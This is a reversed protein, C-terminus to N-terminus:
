YKVPVTTPEFGLIVNEDGWTPLQHAVGLLIAKMRAHSLSSGSIRIRVSVPDDVTVTDKTITNKDNVIIESVVNETRLNGLSKSSKVTKFRVSFSPSAPDAFVVGTPERRYIQTNSM